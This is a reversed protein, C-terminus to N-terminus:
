KKFLMGLLGKKKKHFEAGPEMGPPPPPMEPPVGPGPPPPLPGIGKPPPMPPARPLPAPRPRPPMPGQVPMPKKVTGQVMNAVSLLASAIQENQKSVQDIKDNLRKIQVGVGTKEEKKVEESAAKILTNMQDISHKLEAISALLDKELEGMPTKLRVKISDLEDRLDRLIQHPLIEYEEEKKIPKFPKVPM